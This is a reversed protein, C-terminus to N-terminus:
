PSLRYLREAVAMEFALAFGLLSFTVNAAADALFLKRGGNVLRLLSPSEGRVQV